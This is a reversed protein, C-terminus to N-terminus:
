VITCQKGNITKNVICWDYPNRKFGLNDLLFGSLDNSFLKSADVTGHLAKLAESYVTPVRKHGEYVVYQKWKPNIKLLSTVIAGQLKIITGKSAKTQLFAGPIDATAVDRKEKAAM